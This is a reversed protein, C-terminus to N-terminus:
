PEKEITIKEGDFSITVKRNDETIGMEAIWPAPLSIKYNKSEAGATGGAKSIIINRTRSETNVRKGFRINEEDSEFERIFNEIEKKLNGDAPCPCVVGLYSEDKNGETTKIDLHVEGGEEYHCYDFTDTSVMDVEDNWYFKM